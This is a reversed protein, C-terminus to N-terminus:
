WRSMDPGGPVTAIRDAATREAPIDLRAPPTAAALLRDLKAYADPEGPSEADPPAGWYIQRDPGVLAFRAPGDGEPRAVDIAVCGLRPWHPGVIELLRFAELAAPGDWREAVEPLGEDLGRLIPVRTVGDPALDGAPLRTGDASIPYARDDLLVVAAAARGYLDVEIVGDPRPRVAKAFVVAPDAKFAEALKPGLEPDTLRLPGLRAFTRALVARPADLPPTSTLRVDAPDVRFGALGEGDPMLRFLTPAVGLLTAVAAATGLRGPRFLQAVLWAAPTADPDRRRSSESAM